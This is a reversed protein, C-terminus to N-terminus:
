LAIGHGSPSQERGVRLIEPGLSAVHKEAQVQRGKGTTEGPGSKISSAAFGLSKLGAPVITVGPASAATEASGSFACRSPEHEFPPWKCTSVRDLGFASPHKLLVFHEPLTRSRPKCVDPSLRPSGRINHPFKWIGRSLRSASLLGHWM